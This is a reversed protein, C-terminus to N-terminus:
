DRRRSRRGCCRLRPAGSRWGGVEQDRHGACFLRRHTAQQQREDLRDRRRVEGVEHVAARQDPRVPVVVDDRPVVVDIQNHVGGALRGDFPRQAAESRLVDGVDAVAQAPLDVGGVRRRDGADAPAIGEEVDAEVPRGAASHPVGVGAECGGEVVRALPDKRQHKARQHSRHQRSRAVGSAEDGVVVPLRRTRLAGVRVARLPPDGPM